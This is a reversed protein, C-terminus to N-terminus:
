EYHLEWTLHSHKAAEPNGEILQNYLQQFKDYITGRLADTVSVGLERAMEKIGVEDIENRTAIVLKM